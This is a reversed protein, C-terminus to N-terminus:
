ERETELGGSGQVEFQHADLTSLVYQSDSYVIKTLVLSELGPGDIQEWFYM